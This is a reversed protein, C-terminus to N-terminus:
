KLIQFSKPSMVDIDTITGVIPDTDIIAVGAGVIPLKSDTDIIRGRVTQTLNQSFSLTTYMVITLLTLILQKM